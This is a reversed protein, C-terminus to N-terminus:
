RGGVQEVGSANRLVRTAQSRGVDGTAPGVLSPPWAYRCTRSSVGATDDSSGNDVVVIEDTRRTQAAIAALCRRLAAADDLVPIVV